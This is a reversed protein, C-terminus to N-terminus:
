PKWNDEEVTTTAHDHLGQLEKGSIDLRKLLIRLESMAISRHNESKSILETSRRVNPETGDALAQIVAAQAQTWTLYSTYTSQWASFSVSAVDPVSSIRSRRGLIESASQLLRNIAQCMEKAANRDIEMLSGYKVLADNYIDAEKEQFATLKWEEELYALCKSLEDGKIKSKGFLLRM